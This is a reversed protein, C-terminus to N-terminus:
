QKGLPGFLLISFYFRGCYYQDVEAEGAAAPAGRDPKELTCLDICAPPLLRYAAPPTCICQAPTEPAGSGLDALTVRGNRFILM